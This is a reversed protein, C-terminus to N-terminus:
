GTVRADVRMGRTHLYVVIGKPFIDSSKIKSNKQFCFSARKKVINFLTLKTGTGKIDCSIEGLLRDKSDQRSGLGIDHDYNQLQSLLPWMGVQVKNIRWENRWCIGCPVINPNISTSHNIINTIKSKNHTFEHIPKYWWKFIDRLFWFSM